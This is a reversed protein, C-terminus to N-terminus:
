LQLLCLFLTFNCFSRLILGFTWYPKFILETKKTKGGSSIWPRIHSQFNVKSRTVDRNTRRTVDYFPFVDRLTPVPQRSPPTAMKSAQKLVLGSHLNQCIMGFTRTALFVVFYYIQYYSNVNLLVFFSYLRSDQIYIKVFWELFDLFSVWLSSLLFKSVNLRVFFRIFDKMSLLCTKKKLLNDM